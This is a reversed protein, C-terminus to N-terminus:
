ITRSPSTTASNLRSTVSSISRRARSVAVSNSTSIASVTWTGPAYSAGSAASRSARRSSMSATVTMPAILDPSVSWSWIMPDAM